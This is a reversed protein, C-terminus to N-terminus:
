REHPAGDPAELGARLLVERAMRGHAEDVMEQGMRSAGGRQDLLALIEKARRVQGANPTFARNVTELQSPHIAWKGDYGLAAARESSRELGAVDGIDSCPGDIAQLGRAKAAVAIRVLVYHWVDGPYGATEDGITLQPMGMAASFDGPGFILAETRASAAAIESVAEL